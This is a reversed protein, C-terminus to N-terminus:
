NLIDAIDEIHGDNPEPPVALLRALLPYVDVNDFAAHTVHRRFAPGHAVFAAAMQPDANDYGHTGLTPRTAKAANAHTTISWGIEALCLIPPIRPNKGYNLREPLDSKRRCVMHEKPSLLAAEIEQTKGQNPILALLAGSTVIRYDHAPAFDDVFLWHDPEVKAMGHDAVVILNTTEGLGRKELGATLRAIAADAEAIASDVMPSQPGFHHGEEDVHDLYLALFQPREAKPLDLWALLRDVRAPYTMKADWKLSFDPQVGFIPGGTGPWFLIGTRIGQRHLTVWIPTAQEWWLPDNVANADSLRFQRHEAIPLTEDIMSNAVIGHHDPVQGTVLSYHNPFTVSPFSPRMSARVGTEALAALTPTLGRDLYDPRFGDLSVLVVLDGAAGAPVASM